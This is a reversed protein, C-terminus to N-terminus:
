LEWPGDIKWHTNIGNQADNKNKNNQKEDLIHYLM